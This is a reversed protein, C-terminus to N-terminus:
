IHKIVNALLDIVQEIQSSTTYPAPGLRLYPGRADTYVGKAMLNTQINKAIPTKLSLFGGNDVLPENHALRIVEPKFNKEKFLEKLLGVQALYQKRLVAPTLNHKRFFEVVKAARFQSASDFTAGAFRMDSDDYPVADNNRPAEMSSFAAFWGTIAPRMTSNKPFRLFCNGEGWQLYKYGGFLFYCDELDANKISLPAANTGHYDDILLPIGHQRAARAIETLQQNILGTEFYVRSLIIAATKDDMNQIIREGIQQNPLAPTYVIEIGEESLRQFQRFMSHFEADTTIIKPKTKLSLASIWSVLLAHTSEGRTYYGNHDDYYDRLYARLIEMKQFAAEWKKDVQTACIEFYEKLGDLAVDPWAQHSHGTFLLRKSVNFHSYHPALMKALSDIDPM